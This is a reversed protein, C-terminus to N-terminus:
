VVRDIVFYKERLLNATLCSHVPLIGILDGINFNDFSDDDTTIIGHEQSIRALYTNKLPESWSKENFRAILGYHYLGDKFQLNEKSLHVAGGYIFVENRSKEKGVVPCAVCVAIDDISCSGLNYQMLDYYVFNGPRIEDIDSYDTAISCSPTDGISIIIGKFMSSYRKKLGALKKRSYNHIDPIEDRSGAHYTNGSHSLFGKFEVKESNILDRMLLDLENINEADIGTRHYGTDIKIFIGVKSNLNGELFKLTERSIVLLNIEANSALYNIEDIELINVPFAITINRWGNEFFYKAMSVSSVTISDVGYHRFWEGVKALQHTKFHPRFNVNNHKAKEAIREINRLCKYKDIILTPITINQAIKM